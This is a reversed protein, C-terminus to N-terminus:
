WMRLSERKESLGQQVPNLTLCGRYVQCGDPAWWLLESPHKTRDQHSLSHGFMKLGVVLGQVLDEQSNILFFTM